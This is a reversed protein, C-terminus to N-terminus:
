LYQKIISQYAEITEQYSEKTIYEDKMHATVPGPGLIAMSGNTLFSAETTYNLGRKKKQTINELYNIMEENENIAPKVENLIEITIDNRKEIEKMKEVIKKNQVVSITRFDFTFTCTDPVKNISDGGQITSLNYTAYPIEFVENKEEQISRYFEELEILLERAKDIANEGLSPTSSHTAKGVVTIKFELCGKSAIVPILDTPETLIIKDPFKIQNQVLTHIGRFGVEEDFTFYLALSDKKKFHFQTVAYLLAAIGGKMDCVGLGYLKDKTETLTFPNQTWEPSDSVTDTHCIFGLTPNEGIHAVLCYPGEGVRKTSFGNKKLFKELFEIMKENEKDAITNIEIISKLIEIEAMNFVSEKRKDDAKGFM